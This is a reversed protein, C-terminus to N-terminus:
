KIVATVKYQWDSGDSLSPDQYSTSQKPVEAIMTWFLTVPNLRYVHYRTVNIPAVFQPATWNLTVNGGTGKVVTLSNVDIAADQAVEMDPDADSHDQITGNAGTSGTGCDTGYTGNTGNRVDATDGPSFRVTGQTPPHARDHWVNVSFPNSTTVNGCVDVAIMTTTYVRGIPSCAGDREARLYLSGPEYVCDRLTNGDGTGTGNEPQSSSCSAFQITAIGCSSAATAGTDSVAFDAYGHNPPWLITEGLSPQVTFVPAATNALHLCGTALDCSDITCCNGDDCNTPGGPNCRGGGCRDDITCANGDNCSSTNSPHVCGISLDCSDDTCPNNDDCDPAPGGHCSNDPEGFTVLISDIDQGVSAASSDSGLRWRLQITQGVAAAPLNVKTTIYAPYGPSVSCWAARNALPNGYNPDVTGTYGGSVFNGGAAEIDVFSGLGIKIELV